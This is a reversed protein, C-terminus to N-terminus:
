IYLFGLCFFIEEIKERGSVPVLRDDAGVKRGERM